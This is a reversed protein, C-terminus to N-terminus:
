QWITLKFINESNLLTWRGNVDTTTLFKEALDSQEPFKGSGFEKRAPDFGTAGDFKSFIDLQSADNSGSITFDIKDIRM